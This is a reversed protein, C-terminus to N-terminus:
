NAGQSRAAEEIARGLTAALEAGTMPKAISDVFGFDRPRAIIPDDAYGSMAVLATRADLKGLASVVNKGSVGGPVTLDLLVADFRRGAVLEERFMSLAEAGDRVLCVECGLSRLLAGVTERVADQDDMVLVRGRLGGSLSGRAPALALGATAEPLYVHFTSGQGPNSEVDVAGEHQRVISYVTALGLGSGTSKTTFFPDFIHTLTEKDIGPGSDALSVRVYNGPALGLPNGIPVSVDRVSVQVTGGGAMAQRANITINEFVRAMQDADFACPAAGSGLSFRPSVNSGSLAFEVSSRVVSTVDGMALKPAGGTAFTLLQRSLATARAHTELALSLLEQATPDKAADRALELYGYIGMLLNNFDHAIGGALVGLANLRDSVLFAREAEKRSTIDMVAGRMRPAAGAPERIVQGILLAWREGASSDSWRFEVRVKGSAQPARAASLAGAVRPADEARVASLLEDLSRAGGDHGIPGTPRCFWALLGSELDLDFAGIGAAENALRLQEEGERLQRETRISDTIDRNTEFVRTVGDAGEIWLLKASVTVRRGGKTRHELVGSWRGSERLAGQIEDWREPFETRLLEHSARGIAEEPSFGYLESAGRNWLEIVGPVRWVVIADFSLELLQSRLRVAEEATKLATVDVFSSVVGATAGSAGSYPQSQVIFSREGDLSRVERELPQSSALVARADAAHDMGAFRPALHDIPRGIDADIFNFLARAAPTFRTIRLEHDVFITAVPSSAILNRLDTNAANVELVKSQLEANVTELEENASHLEEQSTHLEENASQLEENSSQLEENASELEEVTSQLEERTARLDSELQELLSAEGPSLLEAGDPAAETDLPQIVIGCSTGQTDDSLLPWVTVRVQEQGAETEVVVPDRAVRRRTHVAQDCLTRIAGRLAGRLQDFLNNSPAGPAPRLYRSLRGATYLLNGRADIAASAPAYDELIAREFRQTVVQQRGGSAGAEGPFSHALPSGDRPLVRGRFSFDVPRSAVSRPRFIRKARDVPVFLDASAALGESPGLFLYGTRRLAYHFMPLLKAQLDPQLYILVNRCSILDLSSFPPDRVLDQTSFICMERLRKSVTYLDGQKTFYRARRAESVGGMAEQSFRGARAVRVAESDIDTAFIQVTRQPERLLQQEDILVALSYAEEGSACGPVWVRVPVDPGNADLIAPIMQSGLADFIEPDRFFRTVGVLLQKLLQTSEEDSEDLKRIYEACTPISLANMRRRIRRRLTGGKYGSFDHGTRRLLIASLDPLLADIENDTARAAETSVVTEAITEIRALMLEPLLALDAVGASIASQPMSPHEATQPLQAVTVGGQQRIALLGASGDRGGGSLVVGVARERLERALSRLLHDGALDYKRTADLRTVEIAGDRLAILTDPEIVYVHGPEVHVGSRAAEVHLPTVRALLEVLRSDTRPSLHQVVLISLRCEPTAAGLLRSLAELGGASAVVGVVVGGRESATAGETGKVPEISM